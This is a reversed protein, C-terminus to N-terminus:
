LTLADAVLQAIKQQRKNDCTPKTNRYSKWIVDYTFCCHLYHVHKISTVYQHQFILRSNIHKVCNLHEIIHVYIAFKGMYM